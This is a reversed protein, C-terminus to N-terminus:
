QPIRGPLSHVGVTTTGLAPCLPVAQGQPDKVSEGSRLRCLTLPKELQADTHLFNELLTSGNELLPKELRVPNKAPGLAVSGCSSGGAVPMPQRTVGVM